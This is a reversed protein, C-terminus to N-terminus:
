AGDVSVPTWTAHQWVLDVGGQVRQTAPDLAALCPGWSTAPFTYRLVEGDAAFVLRLRLALGHRERFGPSHLVRRRMARAAGRLPDVWTAWTEDVPRAGADVVVEITPEPRTIWVPPQSESGEVPEFGAELLAALLPLRVGSLSKPLRLEAHDGEM